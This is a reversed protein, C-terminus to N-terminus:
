RATAPKELSRLFAVLGLVGETISGGLLLLGALFYFYPGVSAGGHVLGNILWALGLTFVIVGLTAIVFAVVWSWRQMPAVFIPVVTLPVILLAFVFGMIGSGTGWGYVSRIWPLFFCVFLFFAGAWILIKWPTIGRPLGLGSSRRPAYGGYSAYAPAAPMAAAPIDAAGLVEPPGASAAPALAAISAVAAWQQMGSTWAQDTPLVQGARILQVLQEQSVPGHRQGQQAYYWQAM